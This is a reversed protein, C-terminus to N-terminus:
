SVQKFIHMMWNRGSWMLYLFKMNGKTLADYLSRLEILGLRHPSHFEVFHWNEYIIHYRMTIKGFFNIYHMKLILDPKALEGIYPDTSLTCSM